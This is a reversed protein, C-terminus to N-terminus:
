FARSKLYERGKIKVVDGLDRFLPGAFFVPKITYQWNSEEWILM